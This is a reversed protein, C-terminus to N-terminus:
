AALSLNKRLRYLTGLDAAYASASVDDLKAHIMKGTFGLSLKDNLSRGYSLNYAAYYSSFTGTPNGNQDMGNVDGSGLYQISAGGMAAPGAGVPIDLFSAGETGSSAYIPHSPSMLCLGALLLNIGIAITKKM